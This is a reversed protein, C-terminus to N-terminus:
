GACQVCAARPILIMFNFMRVCACFLGGVRTFLKFGCQTDQVVNCCIFSETDVSVHRKVQRCQAHSKGPYPHWCHLVALIPFRAHTCRPLRYATQKHNHTLPPSVVVKIQLYTFTSFFERCLNNGVKVSNNEAAARSGIAIQFNNPAPVSKLFRELQQLDRIETAGDADVMLLYQGRARLMGQSNSSHIM